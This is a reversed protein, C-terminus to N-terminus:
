FINNEQILEFYGSSIPRSKSNGFLKRVTTMYNHIGLSRNLTINFDDILYDLISYSESYTPEYFPSSDYRNCFYLSKSNLLIRSNLYAKFDNKAMEGLSYFNTVMDVKKNEKSFRESFKHYYDTSLLLFDYNIQSSNSIFYNELTTDDYIAYLESSPFSEKLFIASRSLQHLFDVMIHNSNPFIKKMVYQFGGYYSGIDLILKPKISDNLFNRITSTFYIYRLWRINASIKNNLFYAINNGPSKHVPCRELIDYGNVLKILSIDDFFYDRQGSGHMVNSIFVGTLYRAYPILGYSKLSYLNFQWPAGCDNQMNWNRYSTIFKQYDQNKASDVILTHKEDLRNTETSLSIEWLKRSIPFKM